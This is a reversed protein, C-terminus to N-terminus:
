SLDVLKRFDAFQFFYEKFLSPNVIFLVVVAIAVLIIFVTPM